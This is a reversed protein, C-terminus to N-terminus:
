EPKVTIINLMSNMLSMTCDINKPDNVLEDLFKETNVLLKNKLNTYEYYKRNNEETLKSLEEEKSAMKNQAEISLINEDFYEKSITIFMM